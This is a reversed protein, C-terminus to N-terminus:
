MMGAPDIDVIVKVARSKGLQSQIYNKMTKILVERLIKGSPDKSKLDKILIHWRYLKKLKPIAAECPGLLIM